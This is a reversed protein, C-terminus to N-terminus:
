IQVIWEKKLFNFFHKFGIKMDEDRKIASQINDINKIWNKNKPINLQKPINYVKNAIQKYIKQRKGMIEDYLKEQKSKKLIDINNPMWIIRSLEMADFNNKIDNKDKNLFINIYKKSLYEAAWEALPLSWSTALVTSEKLNLNKLLFWELELFNDDWLIDKIKSVSNNVIDDPKIQKNESINLINFAKNATEINIKELVDDDFDLFNYWLKEALPKWFSTKGAWSPWILAIVTNM